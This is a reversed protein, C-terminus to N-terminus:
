LCVPRASWSTISTATLKQLDHFVSYDDPLAALLLAVADEGQAGNVAHGTRKRLHHDTDDTMHAIWKAATIAIIVIVLGATGKLTASSKLIIWLILLVAVISVLLMAIRRRCRKDALTRSTNGARGYIKALM